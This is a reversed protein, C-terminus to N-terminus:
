YFTSRHPPTEWTSNSQYYFVIFNERCIHKPTKLSNPQGHILREDYNWFVLRNPFPTIKTVEQKDFSWLELDGDWEQKWNENVYLILNLKRNLLIQDNWNFDNHLGLQSGSETKTYGGGRLYPDPLLKTLGSIKELWKIFHPSYFSNFVTQTLPAEIFDRCEWRRSTENKFITFKDNSINQTEQLIATYIDNPLFNDIITYPVPLSTLHNNYNLAPFREDISYFFNYILNHM